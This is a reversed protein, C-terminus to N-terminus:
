GAQDIRIASLVCGNMNPKYRNFNLHLLTSDDLQYAFYSSSPNPAIPEAGMITVVEEYTMGVKLQEAPMPSPQPSYGPSTFTEPADLPQSSDTRGCSAACMSLNCLLLLLIMCKKHSKKM